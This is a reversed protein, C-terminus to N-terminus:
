ILLNPKTQLLNKFFRNFEMKILYNEKRLFRLKSTFIQKYGQIAIGKEHKAFFQKQKDLLDNLQNHINQKERYLTIFDSPFLIKIKLFSLLYSIFLNSSGYSLSLLNKYVEKTRFRLFDIENIFKNGFFPFSKNNVM